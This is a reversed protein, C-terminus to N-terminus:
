ALVFQISVLKFAGVLMVLNVSLSVTTKSLVAPTGVLIDTYSAILGAAIVTVLQFVLWNTKLLPPPEIPLAANVLRPVLLKSISQGLASETTTVLPNSIPLPLILETVTLVFAEKFKAPVIAVDSDEPPLAVRADPPITLPATVINAPPTKVLAPVIFPASLENGDPVTMYLAPRIVAAPEGVILVLAVNILAPVIYPPVKVTPRPPVKISLTTPDAAKLGPLM